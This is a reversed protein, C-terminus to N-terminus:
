VRRGCGSCYPRSEIYIYYIIAPIIFFFFLVIFTMAEGFGSTRSGKWSASELLASLSERRRATVYEADAIGGHTPWM